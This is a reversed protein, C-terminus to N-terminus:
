WCVCYANVVLQMWVLGGHTRLLAQQVFGPLNLAFAYRAHVIPMSLLEPLGWLAKCEGLQLSFNDLYVFNTLIM